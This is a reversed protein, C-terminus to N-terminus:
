KANKNQLNGLKILSKSKGITWYIMKSFNIYLRGLSNNFFIADANAFTKQVAETDTFDGVVVNVGNQKLDAAKKENHVLASVEAGAKILASVVLQGINGTAGTIAIKRAM